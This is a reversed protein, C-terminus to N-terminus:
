ATSGGVEDLMVIRALHRYLDRETEPLRAWDDYSNEAHLRRARSEIAPKSFVTRARTETLKFSAAVPNVEDDDALDDVTVTTKRKRRLNLTDLLNV